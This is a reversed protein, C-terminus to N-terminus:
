VVIYKILVLSEVNFFIYIYFTSSYIYIYHHIMSWYMKILRSTCTCYSTCVFMSTRGATRGPPVYSCALGVQPGVEQPVYSCALGIRMM